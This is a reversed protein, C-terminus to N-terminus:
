KPNSQKEIKRWIYIYIYIIPFYSTVAETLVSQDLSPAVLLLEFNLSGGQVTSLFYTKICLRLRQRVVRKM